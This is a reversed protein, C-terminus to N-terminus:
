KRRGRVILQKDLRAGRVIRGAIFSPNISDSTISGSAAVSMKHDASVLERDYRRDDAAITLCGFMM